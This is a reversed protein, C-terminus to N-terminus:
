KDEHSFILIDTNDYGPTYESYGPDNNNQVMIDKTGCIESIKQLMEFTVSVNDLRAIIENGTCRFNLKEHFVVSNRFEKNLARCYEQKTTM